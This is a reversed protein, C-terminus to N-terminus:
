LGALGNPSGLTQFENDPTQVPNFAAQNAWMTSAGSTSSGYDGAAAILGAVFPAGASTGGLVLWGGDSSSYVAIGPNLAAAFSVDAVARSSCGSVAASQWAPAAFLKSCGRGGGVWWSEDWGRPSSADRTLSTGGVAIVNPLSAPFETTRSDGASAVVAIGPQSYAAVQSTTVQEGIANPPLPKNSAVVSLNAEEVGYSNSIAAPKLAAAATEAAALSAIDSGQAEFLAIHCTPCAASAMALDLAIEDNWSANPNRPGPPPAAPGPPPTPGTKPNPKPSPLPPALHFGGPGGPQYKSFCGTSSTCPPLGFRTRYVAMDVEATPDDYADVIAIMRRSVVAAPVNYASRLDQPTLGVISLAQPNSNTPVDNNKTVHCQHGPGACAAAQAVAMPTPSPSPSASQLPLARAINADSRTVGGTAPTVSSGGGSCAALAAFGLLSVATAARWLSTM